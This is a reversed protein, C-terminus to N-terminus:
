QLILCVSLGGKLIFNSKNDKIFSTHVQFDPYGYLLWERVSKWKVHFWISPTGFLQKTDNKWNLM